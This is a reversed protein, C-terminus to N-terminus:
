LPSKTKTEISTWATVESTVCRIIDDYSFLQLENDVFRCYYEQEVWWEGMRKKEKEIFEETIRPCDDATIEIKFWDEEDVWAKYFWGQKGWPTTLALVKGFSTALMPRVSNYLEEDVRSAEDIIILSVASYARITDERGPLSLIRSGNEFEIESQNEKVVGMLPAVFPMGVKVKRLLEEAQRSAKSIIIVLSGMKYVAQHLALTASVTSKGSQRSCLLLSEQPFDNLLKTQWKDPKMLFAKEMFMAANMSCAIYDRLSTKKM